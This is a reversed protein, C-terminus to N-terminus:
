AQVSVLLPTDSDPEILVAWALLQSGVDAVTVIVHTGCLPL